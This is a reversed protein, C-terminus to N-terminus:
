SAVAEPEAALADDLADDAHPDDMPDLAPAAADMDARIRTLAAQLSALVARNSVFIVVRGEGVKLDLTSFAGAGGDPFSRVGIQAPDPHMDVDISAM